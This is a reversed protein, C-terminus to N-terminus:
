HCKIRWNMVLPPVVLFKRQPTENSYRLLPIFSFSVVAVRNYFFDILKVRLFLAFFNYVHQYTLYMNPLVSYHSSSFHFCFSECALVM